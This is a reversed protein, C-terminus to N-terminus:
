GVDEKRSVDEVTSNILQFMLHHDYMKTHPSRTEYWDLMQTTMKDDCHPCKYQKPRLRIYARCGLISLHRLEVWRGHGHFQTINRGCHQCSTGNQMSEITIIYDGHENLYVSSVSVDPIDLPLSIMSRSKLGMTNLM